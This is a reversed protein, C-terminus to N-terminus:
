LPNMKKEHRRKAAFREPFLVELFSNLVGNYYINIPFDNTGFAPLVTTSYSARYFFSASKKRRWFQADFSDKLRAFAEWLIGV